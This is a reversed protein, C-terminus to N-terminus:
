VDMTTTNRKHSSLLMSKKERAYPDNKGTQHSRCDECQAWVFTHTQSRCWGPPQLFPPLRSRWYSWWWHYPLQSPTQYMSTSIVLRTGLEWKKIGSGTTCNIMLSFKDVLTSPHSREKYYSFSSSNSTSWTGYVKGLKTRYSISSHMQLTCERPNPDRWTMYM